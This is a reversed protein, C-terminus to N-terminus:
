AAARMVWPFLGLVPAPAPAPALAVQLSRRPSTPSIRDGVGSIRDGVGSARDEVGSARMANAATFGATFDAARSTPSSRLRIMILTFVYLESSEDRWARMAVM